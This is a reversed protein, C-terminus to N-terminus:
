RGFTAVEVALQQRANLVEILDAGLGLELRTSVKGASITAEVRKLQFEDRGPAFWPLNPLDTVKIRDIGSRLLYAPKRGGGPLGVPVSTVASGSARAARESLALLFAGYTRAAAASGEGMTVPLTRDGVDTEALEPVDRTVVVTRSGHAGDTYSVEARNFLRTLDEEVELQDFDRRASHCTAKTPLARFDFAPDGGFASRSPWTGWHWGGALLAQDALIKEAETADFAVAHPVEFGTAEEVIGRQIGRVRRLVDGAIDSPLFRTLGHRGVVAVNTWDSRWESDGTFTGTWVLQLLAYVRDASATALVGSVSTQSIDGTTDISSAVDDSSLVLQAGWDANTLLTSGTERDDYTYHVAGIPIGQADYWAEALDHIAGATSSLRTFSLVLAPVGEGSPAAAVSGSLKYTPVLLPDGLLAQRDLSPAGWRSLDCDRWIERVTTEKFKAGFGEGAITVGSAGALKRAVRQVRGDFVSELGLIVQVREGRKVGGDRPLGIHAAECGGPDVNSWSLGDEVWPTADDRGIIVRIAPPQSGNGVQLDYSAAAAASLNQALLPVTM